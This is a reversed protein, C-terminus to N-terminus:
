IVSSLSTTDVLGAPSPTGGMMEAIQARATNVGLVAIESDEYFPTLDSTIYRRFRDLPSLWRRVLNYLPVDHNGPVVVFPAPM